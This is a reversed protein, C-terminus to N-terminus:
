SLRIKSYSESRVGTLGPSLPPTHFPASTGTRGFGTCRRSFRIDAIVVGERFAMELGHLVAWLKEVSISTLFIRVAKAAFEEVPVVILVAVGTNAQECRRLHVM